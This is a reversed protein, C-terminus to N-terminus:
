LDGDPAQKKVWPLRVATFGRQESAGLYGQEVLGADVLAHILKWYKRDEIEHDVYLHFHGETSSPILKAPLDIDIVLKHTPSFSRGPVLSTVVMASNVDETMEYADAPTYHGEALGHVIALQTGDIPRTREETM